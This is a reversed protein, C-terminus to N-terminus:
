RPAPAPETVFSRRGRWEELSKKEEKDCMGQNLCDSQATPRGGDFGGNSADDSVRNGGSEVEKRLFCVVV